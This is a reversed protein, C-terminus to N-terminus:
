GARAERHRAVRARTGCQRSCWQQRERVPRYFMGCSPARCVRLREEGAAVVRMASRAYLALLRDVRGGGGAERARGSGPDLELWGPADPSGRKV